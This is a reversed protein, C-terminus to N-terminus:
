VAAARSAKIWFPEPDNRTNRTYLLKGLALVSEFSAATGVARASCSGSWKSPDCYFLNEVELLDHSMAKKKLDKLVQELDLEDQKGEEEDDNPLIINIPDPEGM